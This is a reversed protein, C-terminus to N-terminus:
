ADTNTSQWAMLEFTNGVSRWVALYRAHLVKSQGGRSARGRLVGDHVVLAGDGRIEDQAIELAEYRVNGSAIAAIFAEKNEVAGSSHTWTLDEALLSALCHTDGQVMAQRRAADAELLRTRVDSAANHTDM